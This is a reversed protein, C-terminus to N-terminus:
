RNYQGIHNHLSNNTNYHLDMTCSVIPSVSNIWCCCRKGGGGDGRDSGMAIRQKLGYWVREFMAACLM